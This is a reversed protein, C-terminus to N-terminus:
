MPQKECQLLGVALDMDTVLALLCLSPAVCLLVCELMGECHLAGVEIVSDFGCM